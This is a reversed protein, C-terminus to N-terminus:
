AEMVERYWVFFLLLAWFQRRRCINHSATRMIQDVYSWRFLGSSEVRAQTVTNRAVNEIVRWAPGSEPTKFGRRARLRIRGPLIGKMAQRLLPKSRIGYKVAHPLSVALDVVGDDLFPFVPEVGYSAMLRDWKALLMEPLGVHLDLALLNRTLDADDFYERMEDATKGSIGQVVSAPAEKSSTKDHLAAKMASTYLETRESPDFVSWLSLYAGLRDRGATLYKAGRRLLANPPLTPLLSSLFNVPLMRRAGRAKQLYHYRPFGGLLEDAGEGCLMRPAVESAQEAILCLPIVSADAIPEDLFRGLHTFTAETLPRAKKEKLSLEMLRASERARWIEDQWASKLVVFLPQAGTQLGGLAACDIGASWLLNETGNRAVAEQLQERLAQAADEKGLNQSETDFTHVPVEEVHGTEVVLAHGPSVRHIGQIISDTGPVCRLTLYQDISALNLVRPFHGSALLAKLESAFFISEGARGWYLPKIGLRDRFLWFTKPVKRVVATFGGRLVIETPNAASKVLGYLAVPNVISGSENRPMGDMVCPLAKKESPLFSSGALVCDDWERVVEAVARHKMALIMAKVATETTANRAGLVGCIADM